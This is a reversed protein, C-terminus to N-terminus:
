SGLAVTFTTRTGHGPATDWDCHGHIEEMRKRMNMLGNGAACRLGDETTAPTTRDPNWEFGRGDDVVVLVFEAPRLELSVFVQSAQAHKVVNNLTEKFVLFVNHRVEASLALAPLQVPVKLRCRIGVSALYQQAFRSLYAALSDLTDYKPNVAWVIEDLARTIERSTTRIQDLEVAAHPLSQVESLVSESLMSIRTLSAGLDDHMDRALRAREREVARQRESAELARRLEQAREEALKRESIDQLVGTLRIPKGAEDYFGKGQGALHHVSGDPWIVRFESSFATKQELAQKMAGQLTVRDHPDILGMFDEFAGGFVGPKPGFPAQAKEDYPRHWTMKNSKLDWHWTGTRSAELALSRFLM